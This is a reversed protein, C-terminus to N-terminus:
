VGTRQRNQAINIIEDWENMQLMETVDSHSMYTLCAAILDDRDIYGDAVFELLLDRINTYRDTM